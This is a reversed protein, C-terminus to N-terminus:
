DKYPFCPFGLSLGGKGALLPNYEHGVVTVLTYVTETQGVIMLLPALQNEENPLGFM